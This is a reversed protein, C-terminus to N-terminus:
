AVNLAVNLRCASPSISEFSIRSAVSQLVHRFRFCHCSRSNRWLKCSLASSTNPPLFCFPLLPGRLCVTLALSLLGSESVGTIQSGTCFVFCRVLCLMKLPRKVSGPRFVSVWIQTPRESSCSARVDCCYTCYYVHLVCEHHIGVPNHPPFVTSERGETRTTGLRRSQKAAWVKERM